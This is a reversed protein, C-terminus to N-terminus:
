RQRVNVTWTRQRRRLPVSNTEITVAIAVTLGTSDFAADEQNGPAVELWFHIATSADILTPVYAGDDRISVGALTADPYLALTYAAITQGDPLYPALDAEYDLLDKPDM